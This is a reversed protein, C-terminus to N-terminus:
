SNSVFQPPLIITGGEVSKHCSMCLTVLNSLVNANEIPEGRDRFVRRRIIHHISNRKGYKELSQSETLGCCQCIGDDREYAAKRQTKWNLGYSHFQGGKYLLHNSGSNGIYRCENSCYKGRGLALESPATFFKKDCVICICEQKTTRASIYCRKSCYKGRGQSIKGPITTFLNGCFSCKCSIPTRRCKNSCFSHMRGAQKEFSKGCTECIFAKKGRVAGISTYFCDSSCYKGGGRKTESLLALFEKGCNQCTRQEKPAM